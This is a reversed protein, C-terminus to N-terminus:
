LKKIFNAIVLIERNLYECKKGTVQIKINDGEKIKGYEENGIHYQKSLFINLPSTDENEIYCKINTKEIWNKISQINGSGIDIININM